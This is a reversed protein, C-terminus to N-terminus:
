RCFGQWPMVEASSKKWPVLAASAPPVVIILSHCQGQGQSRPRHASREGNTCVPTQDVLGQVWLETYVGWWVGTVILIPWQQTHRKDLVFSNLYLPMLSKFTVKSQILTFNNGIHPLWTPHKCTRPRTNFSNFCFSGYTQLHLLSMHNM